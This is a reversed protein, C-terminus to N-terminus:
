RGKPKGWEPLCLTVTTIFPQRYYHAEDQPYLAPAAPKSDVRIEGGHARAVHDADTLGIGTGLRGRDTAWKGRYGLEFILRQDIEERAIPVGWNEFQICVTNGELFTRIEVWSARARERKWTYKIANHLLNAFVRILDRRNGEVEYQDRDRRQIDVNASEAFDALRKIADDILPKIALREKTEHFRVDTTIFDRLTSFPLEMQIVASRTTM